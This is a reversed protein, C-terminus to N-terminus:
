APVGEAEVIGEVVLRTGGHLGSKWNRLDQLAVIRHVHRGETPGEQEPWLARLPGSSSDKVAPVIRLAEYATSAGILDVKLPCSPLCPKRGIFLPRAPRDLAAAVADLDPSESAPELRLVVTVCADAHYDRQRRHPAMYSAGARGEPMGYTTWGRDNKELRANQMDTLIGTMNERDRRAAFVLRDQLAQHSQWETRKWGLANALLGTLMSAAPFDRTIGVQDIAVGGFALLPAELRLVLWRYDASM